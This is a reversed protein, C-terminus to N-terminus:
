TPLFIIIKRLQYLFYFNPPILKPPEPFFWFPPLPAAMIPDTGKTITASQICAQYCDSNWFSCMHNSHTYLYLIWISSAIYFSACQTVWLFLQCTIKLLWPWYPFLHQVQCLAEVHRQSAYSFAFYLTCQVM